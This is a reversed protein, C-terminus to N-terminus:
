SAIARLLALLMWIGFAGLAVFGAVPGIMEGATFSVGASQQFITALIIYPVLLVIIMLLVAAIVYGLPNGRLIQVASLFIAPTIIALDLAYTVVTTYSDMRAPADGRILASVLDSGWVILTIVGSVLLFIALRRQPLVKMYQSIAELNVSSFVLIFAFLCTSFLAIYVLFLNNFAAGLAMSAYAYLFYALVGALLLHGSLSGRLYMMLSFILLPIAIFLTVVDQGKFGAGFLLTDYRYLDRGFIQVNQGRLTRFSFPSGAKQWFLGIGSSVGALLIIVISLSIIIAPHSMFIEEQNITVEWLLIDFPACQVSLVKKISPLAEKKYISNMAWSPFPTSCKLLQIMEHLRKFLPFTKEEM